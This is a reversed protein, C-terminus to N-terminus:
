RTRRSIQFKWETGGEYLTAFEVSTRSQIIPRSLRPSSPSPPRPPSHTPPPSNRFPISLRPASFNKRSTGSTIGSIIAHDVGSLDSLHGGDRARPRRPLRLCYGRSANEEGPVRTRIACTHARPPAPPSRRRARPLIVDVYSFFTSPQLRSLHLHAQSHPRPPPRPHARPLPRFISRGRPSTGGIRTKNMGGEVGRARQIMRGGKRGAETERERENGRLRPDDKTAARRFPVRIITYVAAGTPDRLCIQLTEPREHPSLPM